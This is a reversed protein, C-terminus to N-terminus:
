KVGNYDDNKKVNKIKKIDFKPNRKEFDLMLLNVDELINIFYEVDTKLKLGFSKWFDIDDEEHGNVFNIYELIKNNLIYYSNHDKNINNNINNNVNNNTKDIDNRINNKISNKNLNNNLSIDNSNDIIINKSNTLNDDKNKNKNKNKDKNENKNENKDNISNKNENKNKFILSKHIGFIKIGITNEIFETLCNHIDNIDFFYCIENFSDVYNKNYDFDTKYSDNILFLLRRQANKLDGFLGYVCPFDYRMSHNFSFNNHISSNRFM